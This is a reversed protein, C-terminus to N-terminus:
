FLLLYYRINEEVGRDRDCFEFEYKLLVFYEEVYM